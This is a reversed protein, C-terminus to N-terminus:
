AGVLAHLPVYGLIRVVTRLHSLRNRRSTDSLGANAETNDILSQLTLTAVCESYDRTMSVGITQNHSDIVNELVPVVFISM